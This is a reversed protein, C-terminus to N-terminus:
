RPSGARMEKATGYFGDLILTVTVAQAHDNRWFWGHNGAFPAHIAGFSTATSTDERYRVAEGEFGGFAEAHLDSYIAEGDTSWSFVVVDGERMALKLEMEEGPAMAIELTERKPETDRVVFSTPPALSLTGSSQSLGEIGLVSGLGTPDISFEAPLVFLVFVLAAASVTFVLTAALKRPSPRDLTQTAASQTAVTQTEPASELSGRSGKPVRSM